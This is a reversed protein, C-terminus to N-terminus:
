SQDIHEKCNTVVLYKRFTVVTYRSFLYEFGILCFVLIYEVELLSCRSM